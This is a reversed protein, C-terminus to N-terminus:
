QRLLVVQPSGGSLLDVTLIQVNDLLSINNRQLANQALDNLSNNLVNNNNAIDSLLNIDNQNLVDNVCLVQVPSSNLASTLAQVNAPVQAQILADIVGVLTNTSGARGTQPGGALSGGAGSTTQTCSGAAGNPGSNNNGNGNNGGTGQASVPAVGVLSALLLGAALLTLLRKM